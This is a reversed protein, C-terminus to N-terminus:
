KLQCTTDAAPLKLPLIVGCLEIDDDSIDLPCVCYTCTHEFM